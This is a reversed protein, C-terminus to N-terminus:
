PALKRYVHVAAISTVPITVLLGIGFLALGLLNIVFLALLFFFLPKFHGTTIEYSMKLADIGNMKRDLVLYMYFFLKVTLYIGPIVLLFYGIVLAAGFIVYGILYQGFRPLQRTLDDFAVTGFDHVELAAAVFVFSIFANIAVVLLYALAFASPSAPHAQQLTNSFLMLIGLGVGLLLLFVANERFRQWGIQLAEKISFLESAM